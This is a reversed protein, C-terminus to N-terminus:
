LMGSLIGLLKAQALRKFEEDRVKKIRAYWWRESAMLKILSISQIAEQMLGTKKDPIELRKEFLKYEWQTMYYAPVSTILLTSLGWLGSTGATESKGKDPRMM